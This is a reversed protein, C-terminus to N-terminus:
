SLRVDGDNLKELGLTERIENITMVRSTIAESIQANIVSPKIVQIDGPISNITMINNLTRNLQKQIKSIVQNYYLDFADIIESRGGLQGPSKVGLLMPSTLRNATLLNQLVAENLTLFQTDANTPQIPIIEPAQEKGESFTIMVKQGESGLMESKFNRYFDDQEEESPIGSALNVLFNPSFGNKINNLHYQGIEYDIKIYPISANYSPLPYIPQNPFYDKIYILQRPAKRDDKNFTKIPTPVFEKKRIQSWDDSYWYEDIKGEENPKGIRIRSFDMHHIESITERDKSWIVQLCYGGFLIQDYAIKFYIDDLTENPNPSYLFQNIKTQIELSANTDGVVELGNGITLEHKGNQIASHISSKKMLDLLYFPYLNDDGYLYWNLNKNTSYTYPNMYNYESFKEQSLIKM